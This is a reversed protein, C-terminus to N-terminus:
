EARLVDLTIHVFTSKGYCPSRELDGGLLPHGTKRILWGGEVGSPNREEAFNQVQEDTWDEPVCVQMDLAGRRTVEPKEM